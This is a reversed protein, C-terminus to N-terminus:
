ERVVVSALVSSSVEPKRRVAATEFISTSGRVEAFPPPLFGGHQKATRVGTLNRGSPKSVGQALVLAVHRSKEVAEFGSFQNSTSTMGAVAPQQDDFRGAAPLERRL